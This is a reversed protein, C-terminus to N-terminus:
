VLVEVRKKGKRSCVIGHRDMVFNCLSDAHTNLERKFHRLSTQCVTQLQQYATLATAHYPRLQDNVKFRGHIQEVLIKSDSFIDVITPRLDKALETGTLCAAEFARYEAQNNTCYPLFGSYEKTVNEYMVVFAWAGPGPNDRCGGDTHIVFKM